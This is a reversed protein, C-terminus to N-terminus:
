KSQRRIAAFGILALGAGILSYGVWRLDRFFLGAVILVIAAGILPTIRKEDGTRGIVIFLWILVSSVGIALFLFEPQSNM